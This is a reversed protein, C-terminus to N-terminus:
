AWESVGIIHGPGPEILTPHHAVQSVCLCSLYMFDLCGPSVQICVSIVFLYHVSGLRM